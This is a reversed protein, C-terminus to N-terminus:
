KGKMWPPMKKGMKANPEKTNKSTKKTAIKKAANKKMAM